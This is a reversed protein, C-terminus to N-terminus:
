KKLSFLESPSPIVYEYILMTTDGLEKVNIYAKRLNQTIKGNNSFWILSKFRNNNKYKELTHEYRNLSKNSLEVEIAISQAKGKNRPIPIILDPTHFDFDKGIIGTNDKKKAIVFKTFDKLEETISKKDIIQQKILSETEEIIPISKNQLLLQSKFDSESIINTGKFINNSIINFGLPSFRPLLIENFVKNIQNNGTMIEFMVSEESITHTLQNFPIDTFSVLSKNFLKFLLYTPRLFSGTVSEQNWVLGINIWSIITDNTTKNNLVENLDLWQKILWVPCFLFDLIISFIAEEFRNIQVEYQDTKVIICNNNKIINPFTKHYNKWTNLSANKALSALYEVEINAM